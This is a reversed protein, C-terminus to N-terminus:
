GFIENNRTVKREHKNHLPLLTSCLHCIIVNAVIVHESQHRTVPALKHLPFSLLSHLCKAEDRVDSEPIKNHNILRSSASSTVFSVEEHGLHSLTVYGPSGQASLM